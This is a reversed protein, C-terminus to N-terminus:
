SKFPPQSSFSCLAQGTNGVVSVDRAERRSSRGARSSESRARMEEEQGEIKAEQESVVYTLTM